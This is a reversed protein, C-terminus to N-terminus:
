GKGAKRAETDQFQVRVGTRAELSALLARIDSKEVRFVLAQQRGQDDEYGITLFHRRSKSLLFMPSIVAALVIRRSANQGYELLNVRDYPIGVSARKTSFVLVSANSTHIAGADGSNFKESTGGVYQAHGGPQASFAAATFLLLWPLFSRMHLM